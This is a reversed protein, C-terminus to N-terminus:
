RYRRNSRVRYGRLKGMGQGLASCFRQRYRYTLEQRRRDPTLFHICMRTKTAKRAMQM